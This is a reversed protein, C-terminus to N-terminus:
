KRGNREREAKRREKGGEMRERDVKSGKGPLGVGQFKRHLFVNFIQDGPYLDSTPAGVQNIYLGDLGKM